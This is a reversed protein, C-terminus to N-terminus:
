HDALDTTPSTLDLLFLVMNVREMRVSYCITVAIDRNVEKGCVYLWTSHTVCVLFERIRIRTEYSITHYISEPINFM